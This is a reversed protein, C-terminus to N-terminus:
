HVCSRRQAPAPQRKQLQRALLECCGICAAAASYSCVYFAALKNEKVQMDMTGSYHLAAGVLLVLVRALAFTLGAGLHRICFAAHMKYQRQVAVAALARVATYTFWAALPRYFTHLHVGHEYVLMPEMMIYGAIVAAAGTFFLSGVTRHLNPHQKRIRSSLQIPATLTWLAGLLCHLVRVMPLHRFRSISDPNAAVFVPAAPMHGPLWGVLWTSPYVLVWFSFFLSLCILCRYLLTSPTHKPVQLAHLRMLLPQPIHVM